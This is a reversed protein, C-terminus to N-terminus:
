RARVIPARSCTSDLGPLPVLTTQTHDIGGHLRGPWFLLDQQHVVVREHARAQALEDLALGVEHDAAFRAVGGLGEAFQGLGARVQHEGVDRHRAAAAELEDLVQM